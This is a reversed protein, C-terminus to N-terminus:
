DRGKARARSATLPRSPSPVVFLAYMYVVTSVLRDGCFFTREPTPAFNTLEFLGSPTATDFFCVRCLPLHCLPAVLTTGRFILGPPTISVLYTFPVTVLVLLRLRSVVRPCPLPLTTYLLVLGVSPVAGGDVLHYLWGSVGTGYDLFHLRGCVDAPPRRWSSGSNGHTAATSLSWWWLAFFM